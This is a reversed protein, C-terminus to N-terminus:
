LEEISTSIQFRAANVIYKLQVMKIIKCRKKMQFIIQKWDDNNFKSMMRSWRKKLGFQNANILPELKASHRKIKSNLLVNKITEHSCNLMLQLKIQKPNDFPHNSNHDLIRQQNNTTVSTHHNTKIKKIQDNSDNLKRKYNIVTQKSIDLDKMVSKNLENSGIYSALKLQEKLNLKKRKRIIKPAKNSIQECTSCTNRHNLYFKTSKLSLEQNEDEKVLDIGKFQYRNDKFYIEFEKKSLNFKLTKFQKFFPLNQFKKIHYCLIRNENTFYYFENESDLKIKEVLIINDLKIFRVQGKFRSM